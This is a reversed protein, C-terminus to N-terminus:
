DIELFQTSSVLASSFQETARCDFADPDFVIAGNVNPTDQSWLQDLVSTASLGSPSGYIVNVAGGVKTGISECLVGIVVDDKGDGNFDSTSLTRGFLDGAEAVEQVNGTNQNWFQDTRGTTDSAATARLGSSSGYIVNVAGSDTTAVDEFSVGVALDDYNDGNLDGVALAIGFLDSDQPSNEINTSAQHWLQDPVSTASLGSSSGYIVNVAGADVISGVDEGGFLGAVGIALDDRGDNNFDGAALTSGFFDAVEAGDQVDATNQTWLQDSRGTGDGASTARLGESSGYILNVAGAAGQSGVTEAPVGIALDDYSDDNFDGSAMSEGFGDGEDVSGEIGASNQNWLQDPVFTASLGSPSGYIVSVSGSIGGDLRMAIALDDFDDGNFDGTTLFWGFWESSDVSGEINSSDRTWLQDTRGSGDGASTALLGNSSGYIVNVAGADTLIGVAEFPVGIALDSYGDNNFDGAGLSAGFSDGGEPFDDVGPSGQSWIQDPISTASLGTGSNGYIINVAGAGGVTGVIDNPVGVALDEFGDGNFDTKTDVSAGDASQLDVFATITLLPALILGFILSINISIKLAKRSALSFSVIRSSILIV